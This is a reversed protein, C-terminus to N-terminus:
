NTSHPRPNLPELGEGKQICFRFREGVMQREIIRDESRNVIMIIHEATEPDQVLVELREGAKLAMLNQKFKLLSVPWAIGTLDLPSTLPILVAM